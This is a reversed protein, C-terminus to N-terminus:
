RWFSGFHSIIEGHCTFSKALKRWCSKLTWRELHVELFLIRKGHFRIPDNLDHYHLVEGDFKDFLEINPMFSKRHKGSCMFVYDFSETASRNVDGAESEKVLFKGTEKDESVM